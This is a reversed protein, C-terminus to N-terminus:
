QAPLAVQPNQLCHMATVTVISPANARVVSVPTATTNPATPACFNVARVNTGRQLSSPMGGFRSVTLTLAPGDVTVDFGWQTKGGCEFRYPVNEEIVSSTPTTKKDLPVEDRVIRASLVGTLDYMRQDDSPELRFTVRSGWAIKGEADLGVIKNFTLRPPKEPDQEIYFDPSTASAECLEAGLDYLTGTARTFPAAQANENSMADGLFGIVSLTGAFVASLIAMTFTLELLTHGRPSGNM